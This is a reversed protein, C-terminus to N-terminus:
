PLQGFILSINFKNFKYYNAVTFHLDKSRNDPLKFGNTEKVSKYKYLADWIM